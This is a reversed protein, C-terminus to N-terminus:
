LRAAAFALSAATFIAGVMAFFLLRNQDIILRRFEAILKHEFMEFRLEVREELRALDDKTALRDWPVPPLHEM